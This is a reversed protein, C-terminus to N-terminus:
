GVHGFQCSGKRSRPTARGSSRPRKARASNGALRRDKWDKALSLKLHTFDAKADTLGLVQDTAGVVWGAAEHRQKPRRDVRQEPM